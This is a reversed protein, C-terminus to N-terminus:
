SNSDSLSKEPYKAARKPRSPGALRAAQLGCPQECGRGDQQYRSGPGCGGLRIAAHRQPEYCCESVRRGLSRSSQPSCFARRASLRRRVGGLMLASRRRNLNALGSAPAIRIPCCPRPGTAGISGHVHGNRRRAYPDGWSLGTGEARKKNHYSHVTQPFLQKLKPSIANYTISSM